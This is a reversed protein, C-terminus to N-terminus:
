AAIPKENSLSKTLQKAVITYTIILITINTTIGIFQHVLQESLPLQDVLIHQLQLVTIIRFCNAIITLIYGLVLALPLVLFRISTKTFLSFGLYCFMLFAILGLNAGSCSKDIIINLSENFYSHDTLLVAATGTVFEIVANIPRILFHLDATTALRHAYKLFLFLTIGIGIPSYYILKKTM